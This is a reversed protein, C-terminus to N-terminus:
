VGWYREAADIADILRSKDELYTDGDDLDRIYIRFNTNDENDVLAIERGDNWLGYVRGDVAPAFNRAMWVTEGQNVLTIKRYFYQEETEHELSHDIIFHAEREDPSFISESM